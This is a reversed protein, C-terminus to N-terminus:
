QQQSRSIYHQWLIETEWNVAIFQSFSARTTEDMLLIVVPCPDLIEITCVACLQQCVTCLAISTDMYQTLGNVTLRPRYDRSWLEGTLWTAALLCVFMETLGLVLCIGGAPLCINLDLNLKPLCSLFCIQWVWLWANCNTMSSVQTGWIKM